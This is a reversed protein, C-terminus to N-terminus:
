DLRPCIDSLPDLDSFSEQRGEQEFTTVPNDDIAFNSNFKSFSNLGYILDHRLNAKQDAVFQMSVSSVRADMDAYGGFQDALISLASVVDDHTGAASGFNELEKYLDELGACTNSFFMREDGLLRVVPKAKLEKSKSKTGVGLSVYEVPISIRLKDMERRLERGMWKVGISDEIAIRKPKWKYGAAAVVGPLEFENFRGRVMDIVYFAGGFILATIIVTYDAWSKTSYATDVTTVVLGQHPLQNAPITRRILLERPFKVQHVKRPNNEYSIAFSEANKKKKQLLIKYTLSEPFWLVWDEEKMEEEIKGLKKAEVTPIWASRLYIKMTVSSNFLGDFVSGEVSHQLNQEVAFEEEKKIDIGYTDSEDYWTGVKDFFGFPNLMARNVDVQKNVAELRTVTLSNENTVVDDLKMIGFHWGSLNQEISAAMVSPEKDRILSAPTQFETDRVDAPRVTHESFLIQFLSKSGDIFKKPGYIPKDKKDKGIEELIFHSALEGVFGKALGYVGTLILITTEPFCILWQICDALNISSKYGGRPVLLLREKLDTYDKAFEEFLAHNAPDKQVFFSNCIPEHTNLTTKNYKELLHCLFFLNTQALFRLSKLEDPDFEINSEKCFETWSKVVIRKHEEPLRDWSKHALKLREDSNLNRYQYNPNDLCSAQLERLKGIVM